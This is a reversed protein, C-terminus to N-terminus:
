VKDLREDVIITYDKMKAFTLIHHLIIYNKSLENSKTNTIVGIQKTRSSALRKANYNVSFNQELLIKKVKEKTEKKVNDENNIVRSVTKFSVGALKAIDKITLKKM